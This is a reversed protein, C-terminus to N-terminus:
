ELALHEVVGLTFHRFALVDNRHTDGLELALAVVTRHDGVTLHHQDGHANGIIQCLLSDVDVDDIQAGHPRHIDFRDGAGHLDGIACHHQLFTPLDAAHTRLDHVEYLTLAEVIEVRGHQAHMLFIHRHGVGLVQLSCCLGVGPLSDRCDLFDHVEVSSTHCGFHHHLRERRRHFFAAEDLPVLVFAVLDFRAIYQGLDLGVFRHHLENRAAIADQALPEGVF